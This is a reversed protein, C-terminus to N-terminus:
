KRQMFTRLITMKKLVYFTRKAVEEGEFRNLELQYALKALGVVLGFPSLAMLPKDFNKEDKKLVKCM